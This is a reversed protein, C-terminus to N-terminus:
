FLYVRLNWAGLCALMYTLARVFASIPTNSIAIFGVSTCLHICTDYVVFM